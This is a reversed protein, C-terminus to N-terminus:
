SGRLQMMCLWMTRLGVLAIFFVIAYSPLLFGLVMALLGPCLAIWAGIKESTWFKLYRYYNNKGRTLLYILLGMLLGIVIYIALYILTTYTMNASKSAKYNLDFSTYWNEAFAGQYSTSRLMANKEAEDTPATITIFLEGEGDPYDLTVNDYAPEGNEDLLYFGSGYPITVKLYDNVLDTGVEHHLWDGSFMEAYSFITLGSDLTEMSLSSPDMIETYIYDTHFVIFSPRYRGRDYFMDRESDYLETTGRKYTTTEIIDIMDNLSDNSGNSDWRETYYILLGYEGDYQGGDYIYSAIPTLDEEESPHYASGDHYAQLYESKKIGTYDNIKLEWGDLSLDMMTSSLHYEYSYTVDDLFASGNVRAADVMTPIVPVFVAILFIIVAIWGPIAKGAEIACNNKIFSGFANRINTRTTDKM